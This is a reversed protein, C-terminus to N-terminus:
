LSISSAFSFWAFSGLQHFGPFVEQLFYAKLLTRFSFSNTFLLLLFPGGGLTTSSLMSLSGSTPLSGLHAPCECLCKM